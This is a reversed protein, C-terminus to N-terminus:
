VWIRRGNLLVREVSSDFAYTRAQYFANVCKSMMHKRETGDKYIITITM